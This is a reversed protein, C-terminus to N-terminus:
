RFSSFYFLFDYRLPNSGFSVFCFSFAFLLFYRTFKWKLSQNKRARVQCFPCLRQYSYIYRHIAHTDTHACGVARGIRTLTVAVRRGCVVPSMFFFGITRSKMHLEMSQDYPNQAHVTKKKSRGKTTIIPECNTNINKFKNWKTLSLEGKKGGHTIRLLVVFFNSSYIPCQHIHTHIITNTKNHNTKNWKIFLFFNM